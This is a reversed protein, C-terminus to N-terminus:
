TREQIGNDKPNDSRPELTMVTAREFKWTANLSKILM